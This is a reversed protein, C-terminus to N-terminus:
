RIMRDGLAARRAAPRGGPCRRTGGRDRDDSVLTQAVDGNSQGNAMLTLADRATLYDLDSSPMM